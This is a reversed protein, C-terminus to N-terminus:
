YPTSPDVFRTYEIINAITHPGSRSERKNAGSAIHENLAQYGQIALSGTQRHHKGLARRIQRFHGAHPPRCHLSTAGDDKKPERKHSCRPNDFPEGTPLNTELDIEVANM